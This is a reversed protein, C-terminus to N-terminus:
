AHPMNLWIVVHLLSGVLSSLRMRLSSGLMGFGLWIIRCVRDSLMSGLSAM